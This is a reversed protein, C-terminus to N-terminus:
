ENTTEVVLRRWDGIGVERGIYVGMGWLDRNHLRNRKRRHIKSARELWQSSRVKLPLLVDAGDLTPRGPRPTLDRPDGLASSYSVGAPLADCLSVSAPPLAHVYRAQRYPERSHARGLQRQGMGM